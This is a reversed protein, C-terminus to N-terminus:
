SLNNSVINEVNSNNVVQDCIKLNLYKNITELTKKGLGPVKNVINGSILNVISTCALIKSAKTKSMGPINSLILIHQQEGPKKNLINLQKSTLGLELISENLEGLIYDKIAFKSALKKATEMGIQPVTAWMSHVRKNLKEEETFDSKDMCENFTVNDNGAKITIEGKIFLIAMKEALLKLKRATDTENKTYIIHIDYKIQLSLFSSYLNFFKIGAISSSYKLDEINGEIFYFIKCNTLERLKLLKEYNYHRKDKISASFDALTKREIVALPYSNNGQTILYDGVKLQDNEYLIMPPSYEEDLRSIICACAIENNVRIEFDVDDLKSEQINLTHDRLLSYTTKKDLESKLKNLVKKERNDCILKFM